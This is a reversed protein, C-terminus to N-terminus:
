PPCPAANDPSAPRANPGAKLIAGWGVGGAGQGGAMACAGSRGIGRARAAGAEQGNLVMIREGRSRQVCRVLRTVWITIARIRPTASAITHGAAVGATANRPWRKMEASLAIAGTSTNTSTIAAM